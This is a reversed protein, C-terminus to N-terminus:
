VYLTYLIYTFIHLYIYTHIYMCTSYTCGTHLHIHCIRIYTHICVCLVYIYIYSCRCIYLVYICMYVYIETHIHVTYIKAILSGLPHSYTYCTDASSEPEAESRIRVMRSKKREHPFHASNSMVRGSLARKSNYIPARCRPAKCSDAYGRAQPARVCARVRRSAHKRM